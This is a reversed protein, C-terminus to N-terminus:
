GPCDSALCNITATRRPQLSMSRSITINSFLEALGPFNPVPPVYPMCVVAVVVDRVGNLLSSIPAVNPNPAPCATGNPGSRKWRQGVTAGNKYFAYVDVRLNGTPLPTMAMDVAVYYDIFDSAKVWSVNRTILDAMLAASQTIKQATSIYHTLNVLGFFLLLLVPFVLVFEISAVGAETRRRRQLGHRLAMRM